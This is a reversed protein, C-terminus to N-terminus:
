NHIDELWETFKTLVEKLEPANLIMNYTVQHRYPPKNEKIRIIDSFKKTTKIFSTFGSKVHSPAEVLLYVDM